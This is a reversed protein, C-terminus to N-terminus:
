GRIVYYTSWNGRLFVAHRLKSVKSPTNILYSSTSSRWLAPDRLFVIKVEKWIRGAIPSYFIFLLKPVDYKEHVCPLWIIAKDTCIERLVVCKICQWLKCSVPPCVVMILSSIRKWRIIPVLRISGLPSNLVKVSWM